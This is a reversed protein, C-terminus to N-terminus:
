FSMINLPEKKGKPEPPPILGMRIKDQKEKENALRRQRRLKKTEKTTLMIPRPTTSISEHQSKLSIPHQIYHTIAEYKVM